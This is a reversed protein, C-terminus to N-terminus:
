CNEFMGRLNASVKSPVLPASIFCKVKIKIQFDLVDRELKDNSPVFTLTVTM